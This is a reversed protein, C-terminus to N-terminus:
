ELLKSNVFEAIKHKLMPIDKLEKDEIYLVDWGVGHLKRTRNRKYNAVSGCNVEKWHPAFIDICKKKGNVNVFDPSMGLIVMVQGRNNLRFEGPYLGRLVYSLKKETKTTVRGNYYEGFNNVMKAVFEPDTFLKERARCAKAIAEPRRCPSDNSSITKSLLRKVKETHSKGYFPNDKGSMRMSM